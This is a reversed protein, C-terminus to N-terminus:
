GVAGGPAGDRFTGEKYFLSDKDFVNVEDMSLVPHAEKDDSRYFTM